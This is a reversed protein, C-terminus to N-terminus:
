AILNIMRGTDDGVPGGTRKILQESQEVTLGSSKEKLMQSGQTNPSNFGKGHDFLSLSLTLGMQEFQRQLTTSGSELRERISETVGYVELTVAGLDSIVLDLQLTGQEPPTLEMRVSGGGSTLLQKVEIAVGNMFANAGRSETGAAQAPAMTLGLRDTVQRSVTSGALASSLSASSSTDGTLRTNDVPEVDISKAELSPLVDDNDILENQYNRQETNSLSAVMESREPSQTTPLGRVISEDKFPKKLSEDRSINLAIVDTSVSPPLSSGASSLSGIANTNQNQSQAEIRAQSVKAETKVVGDADLTHDLWTSRVFTNAATADGAARIDASKLDIGVASVRLPIADAGLSRGATLDSFDMPVIPIPFNVRQPSYDRPVAQNLETVSPVPSSIPSLLDNTIGSLAASSQGALLTPGVTARKNAETAFGTEDLLTSPVDEASSQPSESITKRSGGAIKMLETVSDARLDVASVSEDGSLGTMRDLSRLPSMNIASIEATEISPQRPVVPVSVDSLVRSTNRSNGVGSVAGVETGIPSSNRLIAPKGAATGLLTGHTSGESDFSGTVERLPRSQESWASLAAADDLAQSADRESAERPFNAITGAEGPASQTRRQALETEASDIANNSIVYVSSIETVVIAPDSSKPFTVATVDEIGMARPQVDARAVNFYRVDWQGLVEQVSSFPESSDEPEPVATADTSDDISLVRAPFESANALIARKVAQNLVEPPLVQLQADGAGVQFLSHPAPEGEVLPNTARALELLTGRGIALTLDEAFDSLYLAEVAAPEGGGSTSASPAVGNAATALSVAM